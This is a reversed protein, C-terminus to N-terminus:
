KNIVKEFIQELELAILDSSFHQRCDNSIWQRDYEKFHHFMYVLRESLNDADDIPCTLGNDAKVFDMAGGCRTAVIPLGCALAEIAAVGFTESHSSMVYIDSEQLFRVVEDRSKRGVLHINDKLHYNNILSLLHNYEKGGGIITLSWNKEPLYAKHFAEILIDFGKVPLLNGTSVFKVVADQRMNPKYCFEDGLMNNVVVSQIGFNKEINKKLATSVAVLCDLEKYVNGAWQKINKKINEYGIESWHEIGVVPIGYKKKAAIAISSSGLYHSYILDPLGEQKVVKEFLYLFFARCAKIHLKIFTNRLAKGWIWGVYLNYVSISGHMSHTIGYKRYYKRFRTDFSLVVIQHGLKSLAIAQDREFCGWQPERESPWGRAVFFIKM